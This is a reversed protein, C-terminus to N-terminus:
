TAGFFLSLSLQTKKRRQAEGRQAERIMASGIMEVRSHSFNPRLSPQTAGFCCRSRRWKCQKDHTCAETRERKKKIYKVAEGLAKRLVLQVRSSPRRNNHSRRRASVLLCFNLLNTGQYAFRGRNPRRGSSPGACFDCKAPYNVSSSALKCNESRM